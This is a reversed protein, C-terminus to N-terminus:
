KSGMNVDSFTPYNTLTQTTTEVPLLTQPEQDLGDCFAVQGVWLTSFITMYFASVVSSTSTAPLHDSKLPPLHKFIEENIKAVHIRIHLTQCM